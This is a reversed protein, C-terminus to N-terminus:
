SSQESQPHTKSLDSTHHVHAPELLGIGWALLVGLVLALSLRMRNHSHFEMEPLLDSLAICIFVGGSAALAGGVFYHQNGGLQNVGLVFALAGLPCMLSFGLNVLNQAPKSWGGATMLSTISMADLPKHFLIALFIGFGFLSLFVERHSDAEIAAGLAIGDILTHLSLGIAIGVWSLKHAHDHRHNHACNEHDDLLDSNSESLVHAEALLQAPQVLDSDVVIDHQHFHFTRLLFFMVLLGVMMWFAIFDIDGTEHVAHPIMHFVGIGLMLGGVFSIITQMRNHDLRILSPLYGGSLSALVILVCYGILVPIKLPSEPRYTKLVNGVDTVSSSVQVPSEQAHLDAGPLVITGLCWVSLLVYRISM